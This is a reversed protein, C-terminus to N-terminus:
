NTRCNKHLYEKSTEIYNKIEESSTKGSVLKQNFEYQELEHVLKEPQKAISLINELRANRSSHAALIFDKQFIISFAAGHFSNTVVMEANDILSLFECPGCDSFETASIGKSGGGYVVVAEFGTEEKAKEVASKIWDTAEMSYVFIYKNPTQTQSKLGRWVDADLLFVPDLVLEADKNAYTKIIQVGSQERASLAAFEPLYDAVNQKEEQTIETRGFSSAYSIKKANKDFALYFSKSNGSLTTNLIQDSGSILIDYKPPHASIAKDGYYTRFTKKYKKKFKLFRKTKKSSAVEIMKKVGVVYRKLPNPNIVNNPVFDIIECYGINDNIYKNLAFAQLNAGLNNARHFTMMGIKM